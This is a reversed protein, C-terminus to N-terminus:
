GLKKLITSRIKNYFELQNDIWKLEFKDNINTFSILSNLYNGKPLKSLNLICKDQGNKLQSSFSYITAQGFEAIFMDKIGDIFIHNFDSKKNQSESIYIQRLQLKGTSIKYENNICTIVKKMDDIYKANHTDVKIDFNQSITIKSRSLFVSRNNIGDNMAMIDQSIRKIEPYISNLKVIISNLINENFNDNQKLKIDVELLKLM